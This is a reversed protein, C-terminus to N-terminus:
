GASWEAALDDEEAVRLSVLRVGVPLETALRQRIWDVLNESSPILRGEAFEPIAANLHQHDVRDLVERGVIRDLEALDVVFGTLDGVDGTVTVTLRYNHGHGPLNACKGFHRLNEEETWEPRRYLHSAAFRYQRVLRISM